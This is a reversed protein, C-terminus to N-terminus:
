RMAAAASTMTTAPESTTMRAPEAATMEASADSAASTFRESERHTAPEVAGVEGVMVKAVTMESVVKPITV